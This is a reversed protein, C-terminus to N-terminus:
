AAARNVAGRNTPDNLRRGGAVGGQLLDAEINERKVDSLPFLRLKFVRVIHTHMFPIAMLLPEVSM